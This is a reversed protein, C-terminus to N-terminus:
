AESRKSDYKELYDRITPYWGENDLDVMIKEAEALRKGIKHLRTLLEENKDLIQNNLEVLKDNEM